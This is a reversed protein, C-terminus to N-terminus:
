ALTMGGQEPTGSQEMKQIEAWHEALADLTEQHGLVPRDKMWEQYANFDMGGDLLLKCVDVADNQVCAYFATYDNPQVWMRQQLLSEAMWSNRGEYTLTHLINAACDGGSIGKEVLLSMAHFDQNLAFAGLLEPPAAAIQEDSCRRVLPEVMYRKEQCAHLLVEGHFSAPIEGAVHQGSREMMSWVRERDGTDVAKKCAELYAGYPFKRGSELLSDLMQRGAAGPRGAALILLSDARDAARPWCDRFAEVDGDRVALVAKDYASVRLPQHGTTDIFELIGGTMRRLLQETQVTDELLSERQHILADIVTQQEKRNLRVVAGGTDDQGDLKMYRAHAAHDGHFAKTIASSILFMRDLDNGNEGLTKGTIFSSTIAADSIYWKLYVDLYVGESGGYDTTCFIDADKPIERGEWESNMLFYEDPLYGLSELRQKLEEFVEAATRQGEYEMKGPDAESPKWREMEITKM